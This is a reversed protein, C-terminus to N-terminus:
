AGGSRSEEMEKGTALQMVREEDLEPGSLEGAVRGECMVLARDAMGLIEEMESSVFLICMGQAAMRDMLAYIEAKAGVDIGRTPEDLLLVSPEMALWKGLAAKQQNGGSLLGAPQQPGSARIRLRQMMEGALSREKRSDLFGRRQDRRLSALSLNHSLAMSLIIGQQKRDEPVLAM